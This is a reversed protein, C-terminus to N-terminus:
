GHSYAFGGYMYKSAEAGLVVTRSGHKAEQRLTDLAIWIAASGTNGTRNAQVFIRKLPLGFHAAALAGVKGSVQHPIIHDADELAVGQMEAAARGADFLISGSARIAGFDHDFRQTGHQRSIGPAFSNGASGYWASSITARGPQNPGVIVAGAGDGMQIMNIIQDSNQDLDSPDFFLSGTESGVIAVPSSGMALLGHAIMLANAFGTCAQRLELHPGAFGLKDAVISIGSPLAQCPTTTHGILYSLDGVKLGADILAAEVARAALDANNDGPRATERPRNFDRCLYRTEIQMRSAVVTAERARTFGFRDHMLELLVETTVPSAPLAQGSGLLSINGRSLWPAGRM